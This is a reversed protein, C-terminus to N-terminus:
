NCTPRQLSCMESVHESCRCRVLLYKGVFVFDIVQKRIILQEVLHGNPHFVFIFHTKMSDEFKDTVVLHVHTYGEDNVQVSRFRPKEVIVLSACTVHPDNKLGSEGSKIFIKM